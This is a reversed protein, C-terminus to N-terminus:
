YQSRLFKYKDDLPISYQLFWGLFKQWVIPNESVWKTFEAENGKSLLWYTFAENHGEKLAKYEYDFLVNPYQQYLNNKFYTEIFNKRIRSLSAITVSRENIVSSQLISEYVDKAFLPKNDPSIIRSFNVTFSSDAYFRVQNLYTDYLLKSIEATRPSNREITMFIEGYIMGWIKETSTCFLKTARYYNSPFRPDVEIGKEYYKIATNYDKNEQSIIGLELYLEPAKPFLVLGASYVEIAKSTKKLNDYSNGLLQFVKSYVDKHTRLKELIQIAAEYEKKTYRALAIEYPYNINAPDLQQAKKFYKIAEDTKGNDMFLLGQKGHDDATEKNKNKQAYSLQVTIM